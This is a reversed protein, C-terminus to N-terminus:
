NNITEKLLESLNQRSRNIEVPNNKRIQPEEEQETYLSIGAVHSVMM